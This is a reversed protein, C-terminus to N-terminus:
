FVFDKFHVVAPQDGSRFIRIIVTAKLIPPHTPTGRFFGARRVHFQVPVQDLFCGPGGGEYPSPGLSIERWGSFDLIRSSSQTGSGQNQWGKGPQKLPDAMLQDLDSPVDRSKEALIGSMPKTPGSPMWQWTQHTARWGTPRNEGYFGRDWLEYGIVVPVTSGNGTTQNVSSVQRCTFLLTGHEVMLRVRFSAAGDTILGPIPLYSERVQGDLRVTLVDNKASWQGPGPRLDPGVFDAPGRRKGRRVAITDPTSSDGGIVAIVTRFVADDMVPNVQAQQPIPRGVAEGIGPQSHPPSPGAASGASVGSTEAGSRKMLVGGVATILVATGALCAWLSRRNRAKSPVILVEADSLEQATASDAPRDPKEKAAPNSASLIALALTEVSKIRNGSDKELCKMLLADIVDPVQNSVGLTQLRESISSPSVHAVQHAIDGGVFPPQGTLLEYVTAGLAYIDDTATSPWGEVQQPSMYAMTGSSGLSRSMPHLADRFQTALGFDIIKIQGDATLLINGPKLDRHIINRHHAFALADCIQLLFPKFWEWEFVGDAQECQWEGLGRGEVLEMAIFPEEGPEEYLDHIRVINPHSLSRNRVIERRLHDFAPINSRIEAPVTKVAVRDGLKLDAAEWVIGMGGKALFRVLKFRGNGIIGGPKWSLAAAKNDAEETSPASTSMAQALLGAEQAGSL